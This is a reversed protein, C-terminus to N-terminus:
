EEAIQGLDYGKFKMSEAAEAILLVSPNEAIRANFDEITREDGREAANRLRDLDDAYARLGEVIQDHEAVVDDPPETGELEDAAGRLEAQADAVRDALEDVAVDTRAFAEQVEGYVTRVKEAYEAKTPPGDDGSCGALALTALLAPVARLITM